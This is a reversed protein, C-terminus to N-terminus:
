YDESLRVLLPNCYIEVNEVNSSKMRNPQVILFLLFLAAIIRPLEVTM